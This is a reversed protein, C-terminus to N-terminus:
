AEMEAEEEIEAVINTAVDVLAKVLGGALVAGGAYIYWPEASDGGITLAKGVVGTYVYAMTGPAFGLLTGWFFAPFNISTAGYLYNSLAFPFLPSLRLLVMLKFGEKGIAKDMKAFQPYNQMMNEVTTRLLTRGIVFSISAAISASILVVLTGTGVGFLYGASATLPVAPIALVEAITYMLGFYLPGLPGMDAVVSSVTELAATPDQFFSEVAGVVEAPQVVGSATAAAALALASVGVIAGINNDAEDEDMMEVLDGMSEHSNQATDTPFFSAFANALPSEDEEKAEAAQTKQEEELFPLQFKGVNRRTLSLRARSSLTASPQPSTFAIADEVSLLTLLLAMYQQKNLGM